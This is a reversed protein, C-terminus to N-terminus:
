GRGVSGGGQRLQSPISHRQVCAHQRALGAIVPWTGDRSGDDIFLVEIELAQALWRMSREICSRWAREEDCAPIIISIM